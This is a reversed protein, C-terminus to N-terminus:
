AVGVFVTQGPKYNPCVPLNQLVIQGIINGGKLVLSFSGDIEKPVRIVQASLGNGQSSVTLTCTEGAALSTSQVYGLIAHGNIEGGKM